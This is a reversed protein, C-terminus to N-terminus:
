LLEIFQEVTLGALKIQSSLLGVGVTKGKHVPISLRETKEPHRLIHHSGRVRDVGYGAKCFAAVAAEGTIRPVKSPM